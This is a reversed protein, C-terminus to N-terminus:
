NFEEEGKDNNLTDIEVTSDCNSQILEAAYDCLRAFQHDYEFEIWKLAKSRSVQCQPRSVILGWKEQIIEEIKMPMYYEPEERISDVFLRAIHPVELMEFSGNPVCNHKDVFLRVKCINDSPLISAYMKWECAEGEDDSSVGGVCKFGIKDKDYRYQKINRGTKLAYDLICEKFAVGNFFIQDKYLVGNGRRVYNKSKQKSVKEGENGENDSDSDSEPFEDHRISPENAFDEVLQEIEFEDREVAEEDFEDEVNQVAGSVLAM